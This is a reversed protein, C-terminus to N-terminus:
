WAVDQTWVSYQMQHMMANHKLNGSWVLKGLPKLFNQALPVLALM